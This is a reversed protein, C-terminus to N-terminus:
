KATIYYFMKSNLAGNQHTYSNTPVTELIHFEGYPNDCYYVNYLTANPVSDWSIIIDNGSISITVNQPISLQTQNESPFRICDLWACDSGSSGSYNKSYVWKFTRLGTSVDFRAINWDSNGSWSQQLVGDIYFLLKDANQESSTKYYFSIQGETQINMTISLESTQSNTITGSKASYSGKFVESNQVIWDADGGQEWNFASFDGSEFGEFNQNDIYMTTFNWIEGETNGQSNKSVVKWYYTTYGNLTSPIDYSNAYANSIVKVSADSSQVKNYDTSFYLDISQTGLGNTWMLKDQCICVDNAYNTPSPSFATEPVTLEKIEINDILWGYHNVVSNSTLRFRILIKQNSFASLDFVEKKWWDNQPTEMAMGWTDYSEENFYGKSAYDSSGMYSIADLPNWTNGSDTSIEVFCKDYLAEVKAIHWFKMYPQTAGSLDLICNQIIINENNATYENIVSQTGSQYYESSIEWDKTNDKWNEFHSFGTEFDESLPLTCSPLVTITVTVLDNSSDQDSSLDTFVNLTYDGPTSPATWQTTFTYVESQNQSLISTTENASTPTGGTCTWKIPSSETTLGFNKVVVSFNVNSGAEVIMDHISNSDDDHNLVGFDHEYSSLTISIDDLYLNSYVNSGSITKGHWGIYYIGTQTPTIYGNAELYSTENTEDTFITGGNMGNSSAKTGWKVEITQTLGGTAYWFNVNYTKGAEMRIPPSFFWDDMDLNPNEIILINNPASRPSTDNTNWQRFDRNSNEKSWGFPMQPPTVSDFNQYVPVNLPEVVSININTTNNTPDEDNTLSTQFTITYTDEVNPATWNTSFSHNEWTDPLLSATTETGSLPSGAIASWTINGQETTSGENKVVINLPVSEGTSVVKDRMSYINEYFDVTAFDHEYYESVCIDDMFLGTTNPSSSEHWGLYYIASNQPTFYATHKEYRNSNIIEDFIPGNSMASSNNSTGFFLKLDHDENEYETTTYFTVKYTKGGTLEMAPTFIWDDTATTNHGYIALSNNETHPYNYSTSWRYGDNNSNEYTWNAPLSPVTINDFNECFPLTATEIVNITVTTQDNSTDDDNYLTTEFTVTYSGPSSPATWHTSFFQHITAMPALVPTTENAITPSGGNCTWRIPSSESVTGLNKAVIHFTVESGVVVTTDQMSRSDQSHSLVAFDHGATGTIKVDDICFPPDDGSNNNNTWKFKLTVVFGVYDSLDIGSKYAWSSQNVFERNGSVLHDVGDNIYVEGYDRAIAGGQGDCKWYFSLYASSLGSLDIQTELWSTSSVDKRYSAHTGGDYSIYASKNGNYHEATGCAWKNTEGTTGFTWESVDGEFDEFYILDAMLNLAFLLLFITILRTKM